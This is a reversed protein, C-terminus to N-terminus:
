GRSEVPEIGAARQQLRVPVGPRKHLECRRSLARQKVCGETTMFRFSAGCDACRSQLVILTSEHGLRNVHNHFGVYQYRQREKKFTAGVRM